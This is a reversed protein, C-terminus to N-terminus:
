FGNATGRPTKKENGLIPLDGPQDVCVAYVDKYIEVAIGLSRSVLYEGQLGRWYLCTNREMLLLLRMHRVDSAKRSINHSGLAGFIEIRNEQLKWRLRTPKQSWKISQKEKNTYGKKQRLEVANRTPKAPGFGDQRSTDFTGGTTKNSKNQKPIQKRWFHGRRASAKLM